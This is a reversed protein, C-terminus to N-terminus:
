MGCLVEVVAAMCSGDCCITSGNGNANGVSPTFFDEDDCVLAVGSNAHQKLSVATCRGNKKHVCFRGGTEEEQFKCLM